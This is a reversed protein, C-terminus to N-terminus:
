EINSAEAASIRKLGQASLFASFSTVALALLPYLVYVEMARVEFDISYAGMMRFVPTIILKSLPLSLVAGLLVSVALVISIRITQWLVLTSKQFGIAKLIAIEGKEKTIFSKVMLVAVLMNICLIILVILNKVGEIQGASDGIMYSIYEGATYVEYDPYLKHLLEKRDAKIEADPHDTYKIQIGFSGIATRYDLEDDQYFRIGEGMNNMSQYIATITYNKVSSGMNIEVDDGIRAGIKDAVIYSVAVENNNQPATGQMYSYQEAKVDGTGQFAMSSMKKDGYSVSMRFFVEQFVESEIGNEDLKKRIRELEEAVTERGSVESLLLEKSIVMDSPAMNFWTILRDARLTNITNVPINILLMGLTFILIMSGFRKVGSLIDNVAMFLAPSLKTRGLHIMGKHSYREGTEGNKIASVPSLKKIRRTCFYSFLVVIAGTLVACVANVVLGGESSIIINRSASDILLRGFPFSFVFGIVGGVVSVALYKVIYLGRIKFNPIGIAKMVGIERFEESLTFNITFHLIVMSILILCISVVLVVAALLMDMLYMMHMTRNDVSMVLRLELDNFEDAYSPSDTYVLVSYCCSSSEKAFMEYDNDSVFFRTMGVMPSGLIADRVYGKLTLKKKVGNLDIVVEAGEYFDNDTSHFLGSSVYVEGDHVQTVEENDKDFIKIDSGANIKSLALTNAYDLEEGSVTVSKPNAQFMETSRYCYGGKKAFNEFRELEGKEAVAFWYDPMQAMEFYNDLANSIVLMNNASSAIFMVALTIFILLIMNMSKKRKLDKKLIRLYM